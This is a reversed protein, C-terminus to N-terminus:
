HKEAGSMEIQRVVALLAEMGLVFIEKAEEDLEDVSIFGELRELEHDGHVKRYSGIQLALMKAVTSVQDQTLNDLAYEASILHQKWEEVM